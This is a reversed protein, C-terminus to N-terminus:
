QRVRLKFRSGEVMNVLVRCCMLEEFVARWPSPMHMLNWLDSVSPQRPNRVPRSLSYWTIPRWKGVSILGVGFSYRIRMKAGFVATAFDLNQYKRMFNRFTLFAFPSITLRLTTRLDLQFTHCFM